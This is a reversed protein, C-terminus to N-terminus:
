NIVKKLNIIFVTGNPQNDEVSIKGGYREINEKVIHLGIGTHGSKGYHFGEDFIKDKIEVPIGTGNDRFEITCTNKDSTIVIDIQSSNGHKISNTILNAFVSDLTDDAFVVCSGEVNFKINPYEHIISNLRETIEFENLDLNSEIFTEYNKYDAITKLSKKVRKEVEDLMEFNTTKRFINVASKIVTFDNTLDHRIIKNLMQLRERSHEIEEVNRELDVNLVNLENLANDLQEKQQTIMENKKIILLNEKRKNQYRMYVQLFSFIVLLIIIFLSYKLNKQKGIQLDKILNDKRLLENEKEKKETENDMQIKAVKKISTTFLTDKLSTYKKYYEFAKQYNKTQSYLKSLIEFSELKIEKAQIDEAYKFGKEVYSFSKKYQALDLYLDAINNSTNAIGWINGLEKSLSLSRHYYKLAKDHKKLKFYAIGINNTITAIGEKDKLEEDIKLTNFYYELAKDYDKIDDHIIGINNYAISIGSKDNLKQQIELYKNYYELAIDSDGLTQFINGIANYSDGIGPLDAIRESMKLCNFYSELAKGYESMLEYKDGINYYLISMGKKNDLEKDLLLSKQYFELSIQYKHQSGYANGISAYIRSIQDRQDLELFINLAKDLYQISRDYKELEYYVLGINELVTARVELNNELDLQTLANLLLKLSIEYNGILYNIYGSNGIVQAKHKGLQNSLDIAQDSFEFSKITDIAVYELSIDILIEIKKIGDSTEELKNYLSDIKSNTSFIIIPILLILLFLKVKIM